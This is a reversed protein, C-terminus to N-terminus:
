MRVHLWGRKKRQQNCKREPKSPVPRGRGTLKKREGIFDRIFKGWGGVSPNASALNYRQLIEVFDPPKCDKTAIIVRGREVELRPYDKSAIGEARVRDDFRDRWLM